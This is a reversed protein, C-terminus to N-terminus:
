IPNTRIYEKQEESLIEEVNVIPFTELHTKRIRGDIRMKAVVGNQKNSQYPPNGIIVDFKM